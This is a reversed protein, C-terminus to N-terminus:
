AGGILPLICEHPASGCRPSHAYYARLMEERTPYVKYRISDEATPIRGVRATRDANPHEYGRAAGVPVAYEAGRM